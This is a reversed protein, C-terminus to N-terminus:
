IVNVICTRCSATHLGWHLARYGGACRGAAGLAADQLWRTCNVGLTAVDQVGISAEALRRRLYGNRTAVIGGEHIRTVVCGRRGQTFAISFGLSPLNEADCTRLLAYQFALTEATSVVIPDGTTLYKNAKATGVDNLKPPVRIM